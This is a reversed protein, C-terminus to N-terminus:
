AVRYVTLAVSDPHRVGHGVFVSRRLWAHPGDAVEFVPSTRFYYLSPDVREGAALRAIVAPSAVRVGPNTVGIVTGDSAQLAYRALIETLGDPHIAQWDGGGPLVKGTLRPGAISGGTIPIFRQREGDITGKEQPPGVLIAATFVHELAPAAPGAAHAAVPLLAAGTVLRALDRRDIRDHM